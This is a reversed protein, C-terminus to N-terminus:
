NEQNRIYRIMYMCVHRAKAINDNRKKSRIDEESVGYRRSVIAFIKEITDTESKDSSVLAATRVSSHRAAAVVWSTVSVIALIACLAILYEVM